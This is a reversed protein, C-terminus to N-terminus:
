SGASFTSVLIKFGDPVHALNYYHRWARAITGDAHQGEWNVIALTSKAGLALTDCGRFLWRTARDRQFVALRTQNFTVIEVESKNFVVAGDAGVAFYPVHFFRTMASVDSGAISAEWSRRYDEIFDRVEM